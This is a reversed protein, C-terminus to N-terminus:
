RLRSLCNNNTMSSNFESSSVSESNKIQSSEWKSEFSTIQSNLPLIKKSFNSHDEESEPLNLMKFLCQSEYSLLIRFTSQTKFVPESSSHIIKIEVKKPKVLTALEEARKL